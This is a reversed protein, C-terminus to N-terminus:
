SNVLLCQQSSSSGSVLLQVQAPFDYWNKLPPWNKVMVGISYAHSSDVKQINNWHEVVRSLFVLTHGDGPPDYYGNQIVYTQCAGRPRRFMVCHKKLWFRRIRGRGLHCISTGSITNYLKSESHSSDATDSTCCNRTIKKRKFWTPRVRSLDNKSNRPLVVWTRSGIAYKVHQIEIHM